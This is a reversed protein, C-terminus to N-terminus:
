PTMLILPKNQIWHVINPIYKQEEKKREEFETIRAFLAAELVFQLNEQSHRFYLFERFDLLLERRQFIAELKPKGEAEALKEEIRKQFLTDYSSLTRGRARKKKEFIKKLSPCNETNLFDPFYDNKLFNLVEEKAEQFMDESLSDLNALAEKIHRVTEGSLNVAMTAEPNVFTDYISKARAKRDDMDQITSYIEIEIAFELNEEAYRAKCFDEFAKMLERHVFIHEFELRDPIDSERRKTDRKFSGSGPAGKSKLSGRPSTSADETSRLSGPADANDITTKNEENLKIERLAEYNAMTMTRVLKKPKKTEKKKLKPYYESVVFDDWDKTLAAMVMEKVESFLTPESKDLATKIKSAIDPDVHLRGGAQCYIKYLEVAKLKERARM